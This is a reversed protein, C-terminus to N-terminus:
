CLFTATTQEVGGGGEPLTVETNSGTPQNATFTSSSQWRWKTLHGDGVTSSTSGHGQSFWKEGDWIYIIGEFEYTFTDTPQGTTDPFNITSM